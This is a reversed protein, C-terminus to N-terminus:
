VRPEVGVGPEVGVVVRVAEIVRAKLGGRPVIAWVLMTGEAAALVAAALAPTVPRSIEGAAHAENLLETIHREMTLLEREFLACMERDAVNGTYASFANAVQPPSSIMDLEAVFAQCLAELPSAYAARAAVFRAETQAIRRKAMEVLLGHKSGFRQRIATPTVGLADAVRGLTVGELGTQALVLM